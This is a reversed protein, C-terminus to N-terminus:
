TYVFFLPGAGPLITSSIVRRLCLPTVRLLARGAHQVRTVGVNVGRRRYDVGGTVADHRPV